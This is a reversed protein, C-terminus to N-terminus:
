DYAENNLWYNFDEDKITVGVNSSFKKAVEGQYFLCSTEIEFYNLKPNISYSTRFFKSKGTKDAPHSGDDDLSDADEFYNNLDKKIKNYKEKCEKLSNVTNGGSIGKIVYNNDNKLYSVEVAEYNSFESKYFYSTLYKDNSGFTYSKNDLQKKSFYDSASDGISIGEIQFDRINEAKISSQFVFIIIFVTLIIRM